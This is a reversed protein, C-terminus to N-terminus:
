RCHQYGRSGCTAGVRRGHGLPLPPRSQAGLCPAVLEEVDCCADDGVFARLRHGHLADGLAGAHRLREDVPVEAVPRGEQELEVLTLAVRLREGVADTAGAGELVAQAGDGGRVEVGDLPTAEQEV